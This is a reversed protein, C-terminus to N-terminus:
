HAILRLRSIQVDADVGRFVSSARLFSITEIRTHTLDSVYHLRIDIHKSRKLNCIAEAWAFSGSNDLFNIAVQKQRYGRDSFFICLRTVERAAAYLSIYEPETSSIM